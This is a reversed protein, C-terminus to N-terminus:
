RVKKNKARHAMWEATTMESPDKAPPPASGSRLTEPPPPAASVPKPAPKPKHKTAIEDIMKALRFPSRQTMLDYARDRDKGLEYLIKHAVDKGATDLIAQILHPQLGGVDNFGAMAATFDPFEKVGTDYISNCADNYERIKILEEAKQEVTPEAGRPQPPTPEESTQEKPPQQQAALAAEARLRLERESNKEAVLDRIRRQAWSEGTPPAPTPTPPTLEEVTAEIVPPEAPAPDSQTESM